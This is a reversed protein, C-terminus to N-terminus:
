THDISNVRGPEWRIELIRRTNGDVMFAASIRGSDPTRRTQAKEASGAPMSTEAPREAPMSTEAPREAPMWLIESGATPLVIRGRLEAPVKADIMYRAITKSRGSEDLTIRDGERRTRFSPFTGIKDYDLWKTYQKRSVTSMDGDFDFVRCSYEGAEMPWRRSNLASARASQLLDRGGGAKGNEGTSFILRDYVKEVHVSGFVDLQGNGKKQALYLVDRVHVDLLDKKRGAAKAIVAYVVRRRILPPEQMLPPISLIYLNEEKSCSAALARGTEEELLAETEAAEEAAKAIHETARANIQGLLPMVERRLLNRAYRVDENTEDERWSINRERLFEEIQARSCELLPRIIRGNVPLMGRLGTLRSGRVLNFLVTEAQDEIHHAVAIRCGAARETEPREEAVETVLREAARENDMCKEARERDWIEAAEGLAKYRLHRAAEEVSLSKEAAYGAADVRVATFPIGAAACYKSVYLLDGEASKRLGHHVHLVKLRLDARDRLERLVELLCMSDAGGSVAVLICSGQGIMRNHLMYDYIRDIM